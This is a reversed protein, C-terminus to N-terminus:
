PPAIGLAAASADLARAITAAAVDPRSGDAAEAVGLMGINLAGSRLFHLARDRAQPDTCGDLTALTERAEAVYMGLVADLVDEGIEDRLEELRADDIMRHDHCSPFSCATFAARITM